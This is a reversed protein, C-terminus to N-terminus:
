PTYPPQLLYCLCQGTALLFQLM